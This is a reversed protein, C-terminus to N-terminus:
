TLIAILYLKKVTMIKNTNIWMYNFHINITTTELPTITKGRNFSDEDNRSIGSSVTYKDFVNVYLKNERKQIYYVM